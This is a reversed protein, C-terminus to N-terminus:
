PPAERDPDSPAQDAAYLEAKRRAIEAAEEDSLTLREGLEAPRVLPTLTAANYNGSFDPRGDATRPFDSGEAAVAAPAFALALALAGAAGIASSLIRPEM